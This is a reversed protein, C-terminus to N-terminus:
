IYFRDAALAHFACVALAYYTGLYMRYSLDDKDRSDLFRQEFRAWKRLIKRRALFSSYNCSPIYDPNGINDIVYLQFRGLLFTDSRFITSQSWKENM